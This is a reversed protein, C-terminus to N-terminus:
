RGGSLRGAPLGHIAMRDEVRKHNVRWGKDRRLAVTMRPSGLTDDDAHLERMDALLRADAAEHEGPGHTDGGFWDYFSSTSVGAPDCAETVCFGEARRGAVCRYRTM